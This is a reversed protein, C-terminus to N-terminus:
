LYGDQALVGIVALIGLVLVVILAIKAHKRKKAAVDAQGANCANRYQISFVLPAIGLIVGFMVMEIVSLVIYLTSKDEIGAAAAAYGIPQAMPANYPQQYPQAMPQQYVQANPDYAQQYQQANPDYAPQYVQANPDYAPQYAQPQQYAQQTADYPQTGQPQYAQQTADYPQYPYAQGQGYGPDTGFQQNNENAM